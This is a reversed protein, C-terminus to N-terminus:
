ILAGAICILSLLRSQSRNRFLLMGIVVRGNSRVNAGMIVTADQKKKM